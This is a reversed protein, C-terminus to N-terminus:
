RHPKNTEEWTKWTDKKGNLWDYYHYLVGSSMNDPHNVDPDTFYKPLRSGGWLGWNNRIWMGLSHHYLIM